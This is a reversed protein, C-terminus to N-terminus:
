ENTAKSYLDVLVVYVCNLIWWQLVNKIFTQYKEILTSACVSYYSLSFIWKKVAYRYM